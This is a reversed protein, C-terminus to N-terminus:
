NKGSVELSFTPVKGCFTVQAFLYRVVPPPGTAAAAVRSGTAAEISIVHLTETGSLAL